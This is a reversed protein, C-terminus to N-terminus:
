AQEHQQTYLSDVQQLAQHLRILVDAERYLIKEEDLVPRGFRFPGEQEIHQVRQLHTPDPLWTRAIPYPIHFSFRVEPLNSALIEVSYLAYYDKEMKFTCATCQKLQDEYISFFDWIDLYDDDERWLEYHDQCLHLSRKDAEPPRYFALRAYPTHVLMRLAEDKLRYWEEKRTRYLTAHKRARLVKLQNEKAWRSAWMTWHALSFVATLAQDGQQQWLEITREWELWSQSRAARHAERKQGARKAGASRRQSVQEHHEQRWLEIQEPLIALIVRRDHVPYLLDRGAKHFARYELVPLKGERIWRRRESGSCGLLTRLEVPAVALEYPFTDLLRQREHEDHEVLQWLQDVLNIKSHGPDTNLFQLIQTKLLVSSLLKPSMEVEMEIAPRWM